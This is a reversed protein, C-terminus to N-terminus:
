TTSETIEWYFVVENGPTIYNKLNVPVRIEYDYV